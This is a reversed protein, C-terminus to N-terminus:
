HNGISFRQMLESTPMPPAYFYGQARTCGARLLAEAQAQTEIGEAVVELELAAALSVISRVLLDDANPSDLGRVLSRDIKITDVGFRKLHALSAFSTGFDDLAIRVGLSRLGSLVHESRELDQTMSAETVEICLRQPDLGAITLAEGIVTVMDAQHLQSAALNVRILTDQDAWSAAEVCAARLVFSGIASLLGADEAIHLFSRAHMLGRLPHEWRVLAEAGLIRGTDLAIEPQYHVSLEGREIAHRLGGEIQLAENPKSQTKQDFTVHGSGGAAKAQYMATDAARLVESGSTPLDLKAIGISAAPQITQGVLIVPEDLLEVLRDAVIDADTTDSPSALLIAFEDGGLRAVLDGPRVALRLRDAIIRLLEDGQDHGLSDNVAKFRDLDLLLVTPASGDHITENLRSTLVRRNALGTLEDTTAQHRLVEEDRRRDTADEVHVLWTEHGTGVGELPTAHIRGWAEAGDLRTFPLEYAGATFKGQLVKLATEIGTAVVDGPSPYGLFEAFAENCTVLRFESDCLLVGIPSEDFAMKARREATIRREARHIVQLLSTLVPLAVDMEIEDFPGAALVSVYDESALPLFLHDHRVLMKGSRAVTVVPNMTSDDSRYRPRSPGSLLQCRESEKNVSWLEIERAGLLDVGRELAADLAKGFQYGDASHLTSATDRIYDAIKKRRLSDQEIAFRFRLEVLLDGFSTLVEIYWGAWPTQDGPLLIGVTAPGDPWKRLPVSVLTWHATVDDQGIIVAESMEFSTCVPQEALIAQNVWSEPFRLPEGVEFMSDGLEWLASLRGCTEPAPDKSDVVASISANLNGGIGALADQLLQQQDEHHGHVVSSLIRGFEEQVLMQLKALREADARSLTLGLSRGIVVLAQLETSDWTDGDRSVVLVRTLREGASITILVGNRDIGEAINSEPGFTQKALNSASFTHYAVDGTKPDFPLDATDFNLWRPDIPEEGVANLLDLQKGTLGLLAVQGAGFTEKIIGLAEDVVGTSLDEGTAAALIQQVGMVTQAFKNQKALLREAEVRALFQRLANALELCFEVESDTWTAENRHLVLSEAQDGDFDIVVVMVTGRQWSPPIASDDFFSQVPLYMAGDTSLVSEANASSAHREPIRSMPLLTGEQEWVECLSATGAIYDNHWRGIAEVSLHRAVMELVTTMTSNAQEHSSEVLASGVEWLVRRDDGVPEYSTRM